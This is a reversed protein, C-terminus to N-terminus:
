GEQHKTKTLSEADSSVPKRDSRVVRLRLRPRPIPDPIKEDQSRFAHNRSREQEKSEVMVARRQNVEGDVLVVWPSERKPDRRQAEESAERIEVTRDKQVSAWV